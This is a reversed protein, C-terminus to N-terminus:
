PKPRSRMPSGTLGASEHPGKDPPSASAAFPTTMMLLAGALMLVIGIGVTLHRANM